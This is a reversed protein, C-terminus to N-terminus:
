KKLEKRWGKNLMCGEYIRERLDVMNQNQRAASGNCMGRAFGRPMLACSIQATNDVPIAKYAEADCGSSAIMYDEEKNVGKAKVWNYEPETSACGSLGFITFTLILIDKLRM